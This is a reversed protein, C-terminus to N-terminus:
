DFLQDIEDQSQAEQESNSQLSTEELSTGDHIINNIQGLLDQMEIQWNAAMMRMEDNMAEGDAAAELLCDVCMLVVGNLTEVVGDFMERCEKPALKYAEVVLEKAAFGSQEFHQAYTLPKWLAAEELLEPMDVCLELMMVIENFHNLYDTALFSDPSINAESLRPRLAAQESTYKRYSSGM